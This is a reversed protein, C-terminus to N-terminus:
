EGSEFRHWAQGPTNRRLVNYIQDDPFGRRRLHQFLRQIGKPDSPIGSRRCHRDLYNTLIPEFGVEQRIRELAAEILESALKRAQLAERVKLPGWGDETLRQFALNYAYRADNLLDLEQLRDLVGRLDDPGAFRSLKEALEARSYARRRLLSGARRMLAQHFDEEM